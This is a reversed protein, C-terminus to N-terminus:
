MLLLIQSYILFQNASLNHKVM